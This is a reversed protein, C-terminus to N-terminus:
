NMLGNEIKATKLKVLTRHSNFEKKVSSLEDRAEVLDDVAQALRAFAYINVGLSLAMIFTLALIILLM